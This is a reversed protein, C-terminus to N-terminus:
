CVNNHIQRRFGGLRLNECQINLVKLETLM